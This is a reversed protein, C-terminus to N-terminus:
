IHQRGAHALAVHVELDAAVKAVSPPLLDPPLHARIWDGRKAPPSVADADLRALVPYPEAIPLLPREENRVALAEMWDVV